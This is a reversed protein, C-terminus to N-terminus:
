CSRFCNNSLRASNNSRHCPEIETESFRFVIRNQFNVEYEAPSEIGEENAMVRVVIGDKMYTAERLDVRHVRDGVKFKPM